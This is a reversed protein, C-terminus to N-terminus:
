VPQSSVATFALAGRETLGVAERQGALLAEAVAFVGMLLTRQIAMKEFDGFLEMAPLKGEVVHEVDARRDAHPPLGPALAPRDDRDQLVGRRASDTEPRRELGGPVFRERGVGIRWEPSDDDRVAGPVHLERMRDILQERFNEDSRSKGVLNEREQALLLVAAYHPKVGVLHRAIFEVQLF